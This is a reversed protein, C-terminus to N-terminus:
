VAVPATPYQPLVPEWPGPLAQRHALASLELLQAVDQIVAVEAPALPAQPELAQVAQRDAYLRPARWEGMGGLAAADPGYLGAVVGRRPLEQVLWTPRDVGLRRAILLFSGAGDLPIQLQQALSRAMVVSLRTGTFGGPGTAVALRALRPWQRAPLVAEVCDLLAGSLDRGLPFEKLQDGAGAGSGASGPDADLDRLGVGLASSSSHLALLWSM